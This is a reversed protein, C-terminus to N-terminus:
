YPLHGTPRDTAPPQPAGVAPPEPPPPTPRRFDAADGNMLSTFEAAAEQDTSAYADATLILAAGVDSMALSTQRLVDQVEARLELLRRHAANIGQRPLDVQSQLTPALRHIRMTLDAYLAAIRPLEIRGARYLYYLHAGLRDGSGVDGLNGNGTYGPRWGPENPDTM